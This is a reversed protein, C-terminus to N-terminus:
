AFQSGNVGVVDFCNVQLWFRQTASALRKHISARLKSMLNIDFNENIDVDSKVAAAPFKKANSDILYM